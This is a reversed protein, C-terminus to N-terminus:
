SSCWFIFNAEWFANMHWSCNVTQAHQTRTPPTLGCRLIQLGALRDSTWLFTAPKFLGGCRNVVKSGFM